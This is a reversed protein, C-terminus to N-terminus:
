VIIGGACINEDEMLVFRGMEEIDQFKTIAMPAKTKIIVEGLDLNELKEADEAVIKLNSSDIRKKIEVITALVEQTACKLFLTQGERLPRKGMWFISAEFNDVFDPEQDARCLINGREIFLPDKTLLGINEGPGAKMPSELFKEISKVTTTRNGPLVEVEEGAKIEGSEIRGVSVRKSGIKYVDQIPLVLPKNEVAKEKFSNLAELITPGQYWSMNKSKKAVNDGKIASIPIYYNPSIGISRLFKEMDERVAEFNKKKFDVLDMKNLVVIVQKIGLMSLINAHRRTQEQVGEGADVILVAAEAQSAGTAMNKVFEVHGPADIIVYERQATEFFIQTTDITVGQEREEQLHDLLFAFENERGLDKSFKKMDEIKDPPLSETDFLMRGILTSKGHDVHGAIVFKLTDKPKNM